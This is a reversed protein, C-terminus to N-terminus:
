TGKLDLGEQIGFKWVNAVKSFRVWTWVNNDYASNIFIGSDFVSTFNMRSHLQFAGIQSV